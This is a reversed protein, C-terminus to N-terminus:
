WAGMGVRGEMEEHFGVVKRLPCGVFVDEWGVEAERGLLIDAHVGTGTWASGSGWASGFGRGEGGLVAPRWEGAACSQLELRRRVPEAIGYQRALMNMKTAETTARWASLRTELPHSSAPAQSTSAPQTALSSGKAPVPVTLALRSRLPDPVGPASPASTTLQTSTPHVPAPVLRLSM